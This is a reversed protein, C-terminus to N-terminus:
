TNFDISGSHLPASANDLENINRHIESKSILIKLNRSEPRSASVDDDLDISTSTNNLLILNFPQSLSSKILDRGYDSYELYT